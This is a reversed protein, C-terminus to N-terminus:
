PVVMGDTDGLCTTATTDTDIGTCRRGSCGGVTIEVIGLVSGDITVALPPNIHSRVVTCAVTDTICCPGRIGALFGVHNEVGTVESTNIPWRHFASAAVIRM